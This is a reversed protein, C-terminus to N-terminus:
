GGQILERARTVVEGVAFPRFLVHASQIGNQELQLRDINRALVLIPAGRAAARLKNWEEGGIDLGTSDVIVLGARLLLHAIADRVSEAGDARVQLSEALQAGILARETRDAALVVVRPRLDPNGDNM